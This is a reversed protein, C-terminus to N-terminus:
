TINKNRELITGYVVFFGRSLLFEFDFLGRIITKSTKKNKHKKMTYPAQHFTSHTTYIYPNQVDLFKKFGVASSKSTNADINLDIIKIKRVFVV